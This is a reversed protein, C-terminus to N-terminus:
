IWSFIDYTYNTPLKEPWPFMGGVANGIGENITQDREYFPANPDIELIVGVEMDKPVWQLINAIQDISATGELMHDSTYKDYKAPSGVDLFIRKIGKTMAFKIM